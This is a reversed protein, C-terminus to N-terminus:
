RLSGSQAMRLLPARRPVPPDAAELPRIPQGCAASRRPTRCHKACRDPRNCVSPVPQRQLWQAYCAVGACFRGVGKQAVVPKGNRFSSIAHHTVPTSSRDHHGITGKCGKTQGGKDRNAKLYALLEPLDRAPLDKRAVLTMPVDVVQSVYEFDTLPNFPLKRYLAPATAMGNHHILFTYGDPAAKAVADAGKITNAGPIADVIVQQGLRAALKEAILRNLM